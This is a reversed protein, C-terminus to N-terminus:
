GAVERVDARLKDVNLNGLENRRVIGRADAFSTTPCVGVGALTVVAGDPDVGIPFGWGRKAALREVDARKDGSVVGVFRVDPFERRMREVRDLQPECNAGRTVIFTLVVPRGGRRLDCSNLVGPGRVECATKKGDGSSQRVNADGDLDGGALPAAFAPLPKGIEPGRVGAGENRLGRLLAVVILVFFVVGVLWTYIGRPRSTQPPRAPREEPPGHEDLEALKEAATQARAEGLDGFRDDRTV